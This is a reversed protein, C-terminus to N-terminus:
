GPERGRRHCSAMASQLTRAFRAAYDDDSLALRRHRAQQRQSSRTSIGLQIGIEEHSLGCAERLLGCRVIDWGPRSSRGHGVRWSRDGSEAIARGVAIPGLFAPGPETGDALKCRAVLWERIHPEAASMLDHFRDPQTSRALMRREIVHLEDPSLPKGFLRLYARRWGPSGPAVGLLDKYWDSALWKPEFGRLLGHASSWPYEEPLDVMGAEVANYDIYTVCNLAYAESVVLNSRFRGTLLTGDRDRNRNFWRVYQSEVFQLGRSILGKPSRVFLHFHNTLLAFAIVQLWGRETAEALLTLFMELQEKCEFLPRQALGRNWVHHLAGEYDIRTRRPM